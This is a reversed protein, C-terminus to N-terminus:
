PTSPPPVPAAPPEVPPSPSIPSGCEPCKGTSARLDYACTPCLGLRLRRAYRLHRFTWRLPPFSLVLVLFWYPLVIWRTRDIFTPTTVPQGAFQFGLANPYSRQIPGYGDAPHLYARFIWGPPPLNEGPDLPRITWDHRLLLSGWASQIHCGHSFMRDPTGKFEIAVLNVVCFRSFAWAIAALLFAASWLIRLCRALRSIM